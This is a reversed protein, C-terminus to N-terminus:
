PEIRSVGPYRDMKKDFTYIRTMGLDRTLALHFCDAFSLPGQRSWLSLADVLADAHDSRLGAFSLIEILAQALPENPVDYAGQCVYICEFIVTSSVYAAAQGLRLTNFLRSSRPSFERHDQVLHYVLVNTDIFSTGDRMM